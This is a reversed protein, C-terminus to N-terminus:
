KVPGDDTISFIAYGMINWEDLVVTYKRGAQFNYTHPNSPICYSWYYPNLSYAPILDGSPIVFYSSMEDEGYFNYSVLEIEGKSLIGMKHLPAPLSSNNRGDFRVSACQSLDTKFSIQEGYATGITNIAYARAYYTTNESLGTANGTYNGTGSGSVIIKSDNITPNQSTSFCIGRETYAPFGVELITGGLIARNLLIDKAPLTNLVPLKYGVMVSCTATFNGEFTTATITALGNSIATVFGNVVTAILPNSTTWIVTKNTAGEPLVTAILTETGGIDLSLTTKNISIGTVSIDDVKVKCSATFGGDATTVQITAEGKSIATVLGSPLVTAVVPNSSTWVVTKNTAKEPLVTAVLTQTEGVGLLLSTENLKVETVSVEKNCNTLVTMLLATITLLNFIKKM